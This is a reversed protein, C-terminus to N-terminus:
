AELNLKQHDTSLCRKALLIIRHKNEVQLTCSPVVKLVFFSAVIYQFKIMLLTIKNM